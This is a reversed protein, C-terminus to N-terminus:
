KKAKLAIALSISSGILASGGASVFPLPIGTIPLLGLNMGLHIFSESFFILFIGSLYARAVANKAKEIIMTLIWFICFFGFVTLFGGIFGLEESIAAFVFDTQKEPLFQLQTQVGEGLGRGLFKGSGISIVAQISNYGSGLPDRYPNLFAQIRQRQYPQLVLWIFPFIALFVLILFLIYKKKIGLTLIVGLFGILTLLAVGLSPQILILLFPILFFLFAKILNFINIERETLYSAFFLVLFPKVIESPQISFEGIPIWRVAGRTAQGVILPIFLLVVSVIYLHKSLMELVEFDISVFIYFIIFAALIYFFYTPYISPSISKLVFTSISVLLVIVIFFIWDLGSLKETIRM